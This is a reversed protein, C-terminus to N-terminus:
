IRNITDQYTEIVYNCVFEARNREDYRLLFPKQLARISVFHIGSITMTGTGHLISYTSNARNQASDYDNGRDVIQIGDNDYDHKFDPALGPVIFITTCDDPEEAKFSIYITQVNNQNLYYKIARAVSM